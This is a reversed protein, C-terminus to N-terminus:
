LALPKAACIACPKTFGTEAPAGGLAKAPRALASEETAAEEVEVEVEVGAEAEREFGGVRPLGAAELAASAPGKGSAAESEGPSGM